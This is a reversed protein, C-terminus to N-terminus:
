RRAGASAVQAATALRDRRKQLHRSASRETAASIQAVLWLVAFTGALLMADIWLPRGPRYAGVLALTVLVLVLHACFVPLSAAGLTELVRPRPFYAKLRDGFHITLLMLAFLNILRLPGLDWKDFLYGLSPRGPFPDQGIAHRWILGTVAIALAIHLQWRPLANIVPVGTAHASGLWLGLVWLFQWALLNFAGTQNYPVPVGTAAVLGRYAWEGLGVQAGLWLLISLGLPWAWGQRLSHLLVVPSALLFLVYMPLIDLLPPAYVLALGSMWAELPRARYYSILDNIAREGTVVGILAVLTLLFVLLLAQCAYVKIARQLFARRVEDEGKRQAKQTYVLGAMFASLLVFGEAASVHGFPQGLPSSLVTPLHTLTMLVLM